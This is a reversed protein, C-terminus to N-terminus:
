SQIWLSPENKKQGELVDTIQSFPHMVNFYLRKETRKKEEKM